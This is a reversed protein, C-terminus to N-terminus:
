GAARAGSEGLAAPHQQDPSRGHDDAAPDARKGRDPHDVRDRGAAQQADAGPRCRVCAQGPRHAARHRRGSRDVRPHARYAPSQGCLRHHDAFEDVPLRRNHQEATILPRLVNVLQSASENKLTYVQTVLQDGRATATGTGIVPMPNTKGDAEPVIKTFGAGEVTVFGQARLASQLMPFALSKPIPKGSVVNITGKVRPDVVFTRGTMEGVAKVVAEVDANVFDLRVAEEPAASAATVNLLLSLAAALVPRFLLM